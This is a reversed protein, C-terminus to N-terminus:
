NDFLRDVLKCIIHYVVLHMEQIRATDNSEIKIVDCGLASIKGGTKGSLAFCNIGISQAINIANIVNLSNGSTSIPILLDNKRGISLVQRSFIEDFTYDNGISTISSLNDVLSIAPLPKRDKKFKGVFEAAIHNADSASGGNGCLLIKNGSQITNLAISCLKEIMNINSLLLNSVEIHEEIIEKIMKTDTSM